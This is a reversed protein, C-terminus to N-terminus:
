GADADHTRVQRAIEEAVTEPVEEPQWHSAEELTVLRYPGTVYEATKEAALNSVSPDARSWIFTTPVPVKGIGGTSDDFLTGVRYWNLASDLAGPRTHVAMYRDIQEETLVTDAVHYWKRLEVAGDALMAEARGPATLFDVYESSKQQEPDNRFAHQYADLHPFAVATLTRVREPHRAALYWAVIAGWDHGVVHASQLGLADLVGVADEAIKPLTYADVGSPRAGPSYGRQDFAITRLGAANLLPVVELWSRRSQPFGHLLLVPRGDEPGSVDADFVLDGVPIRMHKVQENDPFREEHRLLAQEIEPTTLADPSDVLGIVRTLAGAVAPDHVAAAQVRGLYAHGALIEETREGEVGPFALDGSLSMSWAGDVADKALDRFYRLPEPESGERLHGRLSLAQLASVTMGQAYSPNFSCVADGMVLLGDPFRTMREYHRRLNAPFRYAVLEDLPEAEVLAEYVGPVPLSKVFSLFGETDTPPHDGLIGYATVVSRDGDVKSVIVGRPVDPSAVANVAMDDGYFSEPMRYHGTTYGLGIRHKAEEVRPYGLEELWAPTRSGRGTTDVVLDADLVEEASGPEQRLVWVGTIRGRDPAARLRLVDCQELFTVGPLARVRDRVHRELFPRRSTLAVLGTRSRRLQEGNMYWRVDHGVDGRAAGDATLEDTLGPFLEEIIQQGRSLLGHVHRGQPVGRRPGTVGTLEDRDIVTVEAYSESLVRAAFLGAMSGGLVIARRASQESM